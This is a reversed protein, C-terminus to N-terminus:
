VNSYDMNEDISVERANLNNLPEKLSEKEGANVKSLHDYTSGRSTIKSIITSSLSSDEEESSQAEVILKWGAEQIKQLGDTKAQFDKQSFLNGVIQIFKKVNKRVEDDVSTESSTEEEKLLAIKIFAASKILLVRHSIKKLSFSLM